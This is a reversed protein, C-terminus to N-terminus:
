KHRKVARNWKIGLILIASSLALLILGMLLLLIDGLLSGNRDFAQILVLVAYCAVSLAAATALVFVCSVVIRSRQASGM